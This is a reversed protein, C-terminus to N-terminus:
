RRDRARTRERPVAVSDERDDDDFDSAAVRADIAASNRDLWARDEAFIAASAPKRSRNVRECFLLIKMVPEVGGAGYCAALLCRRRETLSLTEVQKYGYTKLSLSTPPPPTGRREADNSVEIYLSSM